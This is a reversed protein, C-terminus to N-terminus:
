KEPISEVIIHPYPTYIIESLTRLSKIRIKKAMKILKGAYQRSIGCPIHFILSKGAAPKNGAGFTINICLMFIVYVYCRGKQSLFLRQLAKAGSAPIAYKQM